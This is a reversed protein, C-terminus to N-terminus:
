LGGFLLVCNSYQSNMEYGQKPGQTSTATGSGPIREKLKM